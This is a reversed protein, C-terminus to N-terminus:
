PAFGQVGPNTSVSAAFPPGKLRSRMTYGRRGEAEPPVPRRGPERGPVNPSLEELGSGDPAAGGAPPGLRESEAKERDIRLAFAPRGAPRGVREV